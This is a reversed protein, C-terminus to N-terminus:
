SLFNLSILISQLSLCVQKALAVVQTSQARNVHQFNNDEKTWDCGIHIKKLPHTSQVSNSTQAAHITKLLQDLVQKSDMQHWQLKIGLPASRSKAFATAFITNAAPTLSGRSWVVLRWKRDYLFWAVWIQIDENLWSADLFCM